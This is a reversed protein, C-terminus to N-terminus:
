CRKRRKKLQEVLLACSAVVSERVSDYQRYNRYAEFALEMQQTIYVPIITVHGEYRGDCLIMGLMMQVEFNAMWKSGMEESHEVSSSSYIEGHLPIEKPSQLRLPMSCHKPLLADVLPLGELADELDSATMKPPDGAPGSHM